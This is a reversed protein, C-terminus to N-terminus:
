QKKKEDLWSTIEALVKDPEEIADSTFYAGNKTKLRVYAYPRIDMKKTEVRKILEAFEIDSAKITSSKNKFNIRNLILENGSIEISPIDLNNNNRRRSEDLLLLACAFIFPVVIQFYFFPIMSKLRGEDANYFFELAIVLAIIECIFVLALAIYTELASFCVRARKFKM